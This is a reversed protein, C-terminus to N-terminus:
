CFSLNTNNHAGKSLRPAKPALINLYYYYFICPTLRLWGIFVVVECRERGRPTNVFAGLSWSRLPPQIRLSFSSLIISLM